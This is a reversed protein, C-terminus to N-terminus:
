MRSCSGSKCGTAIQVTANRKVSCIKLNIKPQRATALCEFTSLM